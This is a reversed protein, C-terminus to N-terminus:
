NTSIHKKTNRMRLFVFIGLGLVFISGIVWWLWSPKNQPEIFDFAPPLPIGNSLGADAEHQKTLEDALKKYKLHLANSDIAAYLKSLAIYNGIMWENGSISEALEAGKKYYDLAETYKKEEFLINGLDTYTGALHDKYDNTKRIEFAIYGHHWASDLKKEKFYSVGLNGHNTALYRNNGTEENMAIAEFLLKRYLAVNGKRDALLALNNTIAALGNLDNLKTRITKSLIFYRDALSDQNLFMYINGYAHYSDAMRKEDDLNKRIEFAKGYWSLQSKTDGNIFCSKGLQYYCDSMLPKNQIKEAYKLAFQLAKQAGSFDGTQINCQGAVLYAEAIGRDFNNNRSALLATNAFNLAEPVNSAILAKARSIDRLALSDDGQAKATFVFFISLIFSIFLKNM